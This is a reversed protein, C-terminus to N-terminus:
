ASVGVLGIGALGGSLAGRGSKGRRGADMEPHVQGGQTSSLEFCALAALDGANAGHGELDGTLHQTIGDHAQDDGLTGVDGRDGVQASGNPSGDPSRQDFPVRGTHNGATIDSLAELDVM